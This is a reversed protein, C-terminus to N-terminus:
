REARIVATVRIHGDTDQEFTLGDLEDLKDWGEPLEDFGMAALEIVPSHGFAIADDHDDMAEFMGTLAALAESGFDMVRYTDHARKLCELNSLGEAQAKKFEDNVMDGLTKPNGIEMVIPMTRPADAQSECFALSTQATRVLPGHFLKDYYFSNGGFAIEGERRALDLGEASIFDGAKKGHRRWDIRKITESM